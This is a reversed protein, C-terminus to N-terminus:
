RKIFKQISKGESSSIEIFYLGESLNSVDISETENKESFVQRGQLNIIAITEIQLNESSIFLRDAVPNPYINISQLENESIALASTGYRAYFGPAFELLLEGEDTVPDISLTIHQPSSPALYSFFMNEFIVHELYNCLALTADFSTTMLTEETSNYIYQGIFGNCAEYGEFSLDSNITLFPNITPQINNVYTSPGSNVALEYLHWTRFLNPDQAFSNISVLVYVLLLLRKKM